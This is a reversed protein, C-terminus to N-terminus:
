AAAATALERPVALIDFHKRRVMDGRDLRPGLPGAGEAFLYVRYGIDAFLDFLAFREGSVLKRFVETRVAPRSERLVPLLSDLIARDYGEADVKVYSLKPLWAAFESRLVHLLNRGQV